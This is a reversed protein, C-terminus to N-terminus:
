VKDILFIILGITASIGTLMWFRMTVQYSPWGKAEFHHHLPAILFVRKGHRFKKSIMQIVVSAIELFLTFAIIPLLLVTNTLFAVVALTTTLGLIGTEGMYFRAPPINFWLFACLAGVIIACFAALDYQGRAAAIAAYITFFIAFSGGALGDLGDMVSGSFLGLMTLCFLPIYLYGLTIDGVFPMHVSDWGLKFYFWYAGVLSILFVALLRHRFKLGGGRKIPGWGAVVAIDDVLGLLSASVLTFLPIWTQSRSLFNFATFRTPYFQALFLFILALLLVTVWILLGAMRPTKTEKDKHLATFLLTASGDPAEVRAEKKWCHYHTLFRALFPAWVVASLFALTALILIIVVEQIM